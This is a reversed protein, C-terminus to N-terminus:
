LSVILAFVMSADASEVIAEDADSAVDAAAAAVDAVQAPKVLERNVGARSYDPRPGRERLPAVAPAVRPWERAAGANSYDPRPIPRPVVTM